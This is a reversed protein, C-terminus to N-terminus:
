PLCMHPTVYTGGAHPCPEGQKALMDCTPCGNKEDCQLRVPVARKTKLAAAEQCVPLLHSLGARHSICPCGLM